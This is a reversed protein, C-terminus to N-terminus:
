SATGGFSRDIERICAVIVQEVSPRVAWSTTSVNACAAMCQSIISDAFMQDYARPDWVLEGPRQKGYQETASHIAYSSHEEVKMYKQM